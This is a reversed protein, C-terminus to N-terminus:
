AWCCAPPPTSGAPPPSPPGPRTWSPAPLNTTRARYFIRGRWAHCLDPRVNRRQLIDLMQLARGGAKLREAEGYAMAMSNLQTGVYVLPSGGVYYRLGFGLFVPMREDPLDLVQPAVNHASVPYFNQYPRTM